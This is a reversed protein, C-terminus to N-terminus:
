TPEKAAQHATMGMGILKEPDVALGLNMITGASVLAGGATILAARLRAVEAEHLDARIYQTEEERPGNPAPESWAVGDGEAQGYDIWIREPADTM